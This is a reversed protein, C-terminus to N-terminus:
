FNKTQAPSFSQETLPLSISIPAYARSLYEADYRFQAAEPDEGRIRGVHIMVGDREISVVLDKM